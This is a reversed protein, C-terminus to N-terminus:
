LQTYPDTNVSVKKRRKTQNLIQIESLNLATGGLKHTPIHSKLIKM